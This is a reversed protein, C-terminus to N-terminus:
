CFNLTNDSINVKSARQITLSVQLLTSEELVIFVRRGHCVFFEKKMLLLKELM